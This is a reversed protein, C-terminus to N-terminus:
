GPLVMYGRKTILGLIIWVGGIFSEGLVLGLFFPRVNRYAKLGGLRLILSKSLWGVFLSFWLNHMAFDSPMIYGIPHFPWWLFWRRMMVLFFMITGGILIFLVSTWDTEPPNSILFSLRSFTSQPASFYTWHQLVSAGKGYILRLSSYFSIGIALVISLIMAILLDKKKFKVGDAIKLGNMINPMMFERLDHMLIRSQFALITLSKPGVTKAGLSNILLDEPRFSPHVLLIGGASTMWTFVISVISFFVVVSFAVWLSMGAFFSMLSLIPIGCVLGIVALRYSIAENPEPKMLVAKKLVDLFHEKGMWFIFAVLVICAGMEQNAAFAKAGFGSSTPMSFGMIEGFLCQLKYIFFFFWLSFSVSLTLLYSFGIVSWFFPMYISRMANWPKETLFADLSFRQPIYPVTPFYSHLGNILHLFFPISFGLWALKNRFFQNYRSSNRPENVMELPLQVLPFTFKEREVWQKRLIACICIMVLYLVFVFPIWFFMPKLWAQWPIAGGTANGEYFYKVSDKEQPILWGPIHQHFIEKWENEPTAFYNPAILTPLLYRMLGSSPIGSAVVMMMFILVLEKSNLGFRTRISKLLPNTILVLTILIFVPGIPFHNGAPYTGGVYYNNYPTILCILTVFVFGIFFPKLM